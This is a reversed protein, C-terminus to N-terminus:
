VCSYSNGENNENIDGNVTTQRARPPLSARTVVKSGQMGELHENGCLDKHPTVKYQWEESDSNQLPPPSPSDESSTSHESPSGDEATPYNLTASDSTEISTMMTAPVSVEQHSTQALGCQTTM